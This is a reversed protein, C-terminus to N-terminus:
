DILDLLEIELEKSLNVYFRSNRIVQAKNLEAILITLRVSPYDQRLQKFIPLIGDYDALRTVV